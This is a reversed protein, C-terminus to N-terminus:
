LARIFRFSGAIHFNRNRGNGDYALKLTYAIMGISLRTLNADKQALLITHMRNTVLM